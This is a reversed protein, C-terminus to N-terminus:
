KNVLSIIIIFTHMTCINILLKAQQVYEVKINLIIFPKVKFLEVKTCSM